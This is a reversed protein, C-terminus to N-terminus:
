YINKITKILIKSSKSILCLLTLWYISLFIRDILRVPLFISAILIALYHFLLSEHLKKSLSGNRSFKLLYIESIILLIGKILFESYSKVQNLPDYNFYEGIRTWIYSSNLIIPIAFLYIFLYSFILYFIFNYRIKYNKIRKFIPFILLQSSLFSFVIIVGTSHSFLTFLLLCFSIFYNKKEKNSISDLFIIALMASFTTRWSTCLHLTITNFPILFSLFFITPSIKNLNLTNTIRITMLVIISALSIALGYEGLLSSIKAILVFTPEGGNAAGGPWEGTKLFSLYFKQYSLADGINLSISNLIKYFIIPVFIFYQLLYIKNISLSKFSTSRLFAM